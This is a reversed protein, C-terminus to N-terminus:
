ETDGDSVETDTDTAQEATIKINFGHLLGQVVFDILSVGGLGVLGSTGILFFFNQDVGDFYNFWVLGYILGFTGSYLIATLVARWNLDRGSRLLAALGAMSSITFCAALVQLPTLKEQM